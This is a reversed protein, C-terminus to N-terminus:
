LSMVSSTDTKPNSKKLETEFFKSILFQMVVGNELEILKQGTKSKGSNGSAISVM